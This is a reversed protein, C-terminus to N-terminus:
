NQYTLYHSSYIHKVNVERLFLSTDTHTSTKLLGFNFDGAIYVKRNMEHSLKGLLENLKNDNFQSTNMNPHRYIVIFTSELDKCQYMELDKRPKFNIGEAVNIMTGGKAAETLCQDYYGRQSSRNSM